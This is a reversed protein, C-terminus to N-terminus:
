ALAKKSKPKAKTVNPIKKIPKPKRNKSWDFNANSKLKVQNSDYKEDDDDGNEDDHTYPNANMKEYQRMQKRTFFDAKEVPLPCKYRGREDLSLMVIKLTSEFCINNGM